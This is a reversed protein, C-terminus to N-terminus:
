AAGKEATVFPKKARPPPAAIAGDPNALWAKIPETGVGPTHKSLLKALTTVSPMNHEYFSGTPTKHWGSSPDHPLGVGSVSQIHHQREMRRYAFGRVYGWALIRYRDGFSHDSRIAVHLAKVRAKDEDSMQLYDNTM